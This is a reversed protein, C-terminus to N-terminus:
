ISHLSNHAYRVSDFYETPPLQLAISINFRFRHKPLKPNSSISLYVFRFNQKFNSAKKHVSRGLCVDNGQAGDTDAAFTWKKMRQFTFITTGMNRISFSSVFLLIRDGNRENSTGVQTSHALMVFLLHTKEREIRSNRKKEM